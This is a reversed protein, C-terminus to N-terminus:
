SYQSFNAPFSSISTGTLYLQRLHSLQTFSSPLHKLSSCNTLDLKRLGNLAGINTPLSHLKSAYIKMSTLNQLNTITAPLETLEEAMCIDLQRLAQSTSLGLLRKLQEARAISLTRLRSGRESDLRLQGLKAGPSLTAFFRSSREATSMREAEVAGVQYPQGSGKAPSERDHCQYSPDSTGMHFATLHHCTSAKLRALFDDDVIKVSPGSLYLHTLQTFCPVAHLFDECSVVVDKKARFAM